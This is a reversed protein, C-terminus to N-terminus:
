GYRAAPGHTLAQRDPKGSELMPLAARVVVERPAWERPHTVAVFDRVEDSTPPERGPVAVIFAVVRTGWEADPVGVAAESITPHARLRREVAGLAVNTGGSIVVDDLRGLVELRGTSDFRGFDPTHLRGARM